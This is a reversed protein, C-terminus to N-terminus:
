KSRLIQYKPSNWSSNQGISASKGRSKKGGAAVRVCAGERARHGLGANFARADVHDAAMRHTVLKVLRAAADVRRLRATPSISRAGTARANKRSFVM